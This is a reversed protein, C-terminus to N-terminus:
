LYAPLLSLIGATIIAVPISLVFAMGNRVLAFKRGLAAMEAPLQVIGVTVWTLIFATIAFLSIGYDLLEGGIVYSNIPNGAIISGFCAAWLTDVLPNGTFISMLIDKSVFTQFLGMLLIVGALVPLLTVFQRITKGTAEIFLGRNLQFKSQEAPKKATIDFSGRRYNEIAEHVSGKIGTIVEIGNAKLQNRMVPSCYGVLVHSIEHSLLFVATQIGKGQNILAGPNTLIEFDGTQDDFIVLFPSTSFKLGVAASLGSDDALVAIKM